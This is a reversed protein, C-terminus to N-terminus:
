INEVKSIEKPIQLEPPGAEAISLRKMAEEMEEELENGEIM